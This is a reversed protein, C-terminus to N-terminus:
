KEIVTNWWAVFESYNYKQALAFMQQKLRKIVWGKRGSIGFDDASNLRRLDHYEKYFREGDSPSLGYIDMAIKIGDKERKFPIPKVELYPIRYELIRHFLAYTEASPAIPEKVHKEKVDGVQSVEKEEVPPPLKGGPKNYAPLNAEILAIVKVAETLKGEKGEWYEFKRDPLYEKPYKYSPNGIIFLQILHEQQDKVQKAYELAALKDIDSIAGIYRPDKVLKQYYQHDKM